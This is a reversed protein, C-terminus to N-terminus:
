IKEGSFTSALLKFSTVTDDIPNFQIIPLTVGANVFQELRKRSEDPTGCITLSDLM